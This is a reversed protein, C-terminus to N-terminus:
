VIQIVSQSYTKRGISTGAKAQAKVLIPSFIKAAFGVWCIRAPNRKGNIVYCLAANKKKSRTATDNALETLIPWLLRQQSEIAM